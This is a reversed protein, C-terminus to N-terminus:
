HMGLFPLPQGQMFLGPGQLEKIYMYTSDIVRFTSKPCLGKDMRLFLSHQQLLCGLMRDESGLPLFWNGPVSLAKFFTMPHYDFIGWRVGGRCYMLQQLLLGNPCNIQKCLQLRGLKMERAKTGNYGWWVLSVHLAVPMTVLLHSEFFLLQPKIWQETPERLDAVLDSMNVITWHHVGEMTVHYLQHLVSTGHALDRQSDLALHGPWSGFGAVLRLTLRFNSIHIESLKSTTSHTKAVTLPYERQEVLTHSM